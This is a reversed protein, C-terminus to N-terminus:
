NNSYNRKIQTPFKFGILFNIIKEDSSFFNLKVNNVIKKEAKNKTPIDYKSGINVLKDVQKHKGRPIYAINFSDFGEILNWVRYKYLKLIENKTVNLNRVQNM